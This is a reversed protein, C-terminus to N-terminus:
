SAVNVIVHDVIKSNRLISVLANIIDIQKQDKSENSLVHHIEKVLSETVEKTLSNLKNKLLDDIEEKLAKTQSEKAAFSSRMEEREKEKDQISLGTEELQKRVRGLREEQISRIKGYNTLAIQINDIEKTIRQLEAQLRKNSLSERCYLYISLDKIFRTNHQIAEHLCSEKPKRLLIVTQETDPLAVRHGELVNLEATKMSSYYTSILRSSTVREHSHREVM